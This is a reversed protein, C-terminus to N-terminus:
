NPDAQLARIETDKQSYQNKRERDIAWGTLFYSFCHISFDSKLIRILVDFSQSERSAPHHKMIKM